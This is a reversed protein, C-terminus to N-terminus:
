AAWPPLYLLEGDDMSFLDGMDSQIFRGYDDLLAEIRESAETMVKDKAIRFVRARYPWQKCVFIFNFRIQYDLQLINRVGKTYFCDQWHYFRNTIDRSVPLGGLSGIFSKLDTIDVIGEYDDVKLYDPRIKCPFGRDDWWLGSLEPTGGALLEVAEPNAMVAAGMYEIEQVTAHGLITKGTNAAEFEKWYVKGDKSQKSVDPAEAFESYYLEPTLVRCHFAKGEDLAPTSKDEKQFSLLYAIPDESFTKLGHVSMYPLSLYESFPITTFENM